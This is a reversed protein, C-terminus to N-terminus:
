EQDENSIWREFRSKSLDQLFALRRSNRGRAALRSFAPLVAKVTFELELAQDSFKFGDGFQELASHIDGRNPVIRVSQLLDIATV